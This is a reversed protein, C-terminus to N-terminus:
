RRCLASPMEVRGGLQWYFALDEGSWPQMTLVKGENDFRFTMMERMDIPQGLGEFTFMPGNINGTIRWTVVVRDGKAIIDEITNIRNTFSGIRYDNGHFAEDLIYFGAHAFPQALQQHEKSYWRDPDANRGVGSLMEMVSQVNRHEEATYSQRSIEGRVALNSASRAWSWKFYSTTANAGLADQAAGPPSASLMLLVSLCGALSKLSYSTVTKLTTV